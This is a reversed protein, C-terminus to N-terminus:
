VGYAGCAGGLEDKEIVQVINPSSYLNNLGENHLKRWEGPVVDRLFAVNCVIKTGKNTYMGM